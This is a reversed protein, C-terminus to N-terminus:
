AKYISGINWVDWLDHFANHIEWCRESTGFFVRLTCFLYIKRGMGGNLSDSIGLLPPFKFSKWTSAFDPHGLPRLRWVWSFYEESSNLSCEPGRILAHTRIGSRVFSKKVYRNKKLFTSSKTPFLIAIYEKQKCMKVWLDMLFKIKAPGAHRMFSNKCQDKRVSEKSISFFKYYIM